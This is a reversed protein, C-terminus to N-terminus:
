RQLNGVRVKQTLTVQQPQGSNFDYLRVSLSFTMLQRTLYDMKVVDTPLNNQIQYTVIIRSQVINGNDDYTEPLENVGNNGRQRSNFLITGPAYLPDTKDGNPDYNIMYENDGLKNPDALSRPVRTYTILRGYNPGPRMDPGKVVESGPVIRVNPIVALPSRRGDNLVPDLEDLRIYRLQTSAWRANVEKPDFVSPQPNGALDHLLVSDPLAFNIIGRRPDVTFMIEPPAGSPDLVPNYPNFNGRKYLRETGSATDYEYENVEPSVGDWKFYRLVPDSLSSRFIYLSFPRTWHGYATRHATPPPPNSPTAPAENGPDGIRGPTGADNGVYSPQFRVLSAIRMRTVTAGSPDRYTFYIPNKQEDREVSVMDARDAPVLSRAVARWNESLNVQNDGNLDRWGPLAAPYGSPPTVVRNDYFFNPDYLIPNGNSDKQFLRTDVQGDRTYPSVVARYLLFPNHDRLSAARPNAYFNKYLQVPRGTTGVYDGTANNRLGVWYRVIVRGPAVPLALPGRQDEVPLGTTPDEPIGIGINPNQDNVRAPPVLDIAAYDMPVILPEGSPGEVWFYIPQANNDYIFVADALERQVQEMVQRSVDQTLVQVRARNTLNFGQFLPGFILGFLIASIAMVVLLEVLTFGRMRRRPLQYLTM